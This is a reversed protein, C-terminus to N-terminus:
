QKILRFVDITCVRYILIVFQLIMEFHFRWPGGGIVIEYLNYLDPQYHARQEWITSRQRERFNIKCIITPPDIVPFRLCRVYGLWSRANCSRPLCAITEGAPKNSSIISRTASIRTHQEQLERSPALKGERRRSWENPPPPPEFKTASHLYLFIKNLFQVISPIRLSYFKEKHIQYM